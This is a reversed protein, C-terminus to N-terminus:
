KITFACEPDFPKDRHFETQKTTPRNDPPDLMSKKKKTFKHTIEAELEAIAANTLIIEKKQHDRYAELKKIAHKIQSKNRKDM